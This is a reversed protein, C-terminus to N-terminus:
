LNLKLGMMFNHTQYQVPGVASFHTDEAAVFRYEGILSWRNSLPYEVGALAQAGFSTRTEQPGGMAGYNVAVAGAGIGVYPKVPMDWDFHYLLSAMFSTGGLHASCCAYQNQSHMIDGRLDWQPGLLHTLRLGGSVGVNYGTKLKYGLGGIDLWNGLTGGASGQVYGQAGAPSFAFFTAAAAAIVWPKM